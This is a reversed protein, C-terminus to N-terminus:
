EDKKDKKGSGVAVLAPRLPKSFFKYGKRHVKIVKDEEGEVSEIAEHVTPDFKKGESEVEELGQSTLFKKFKDVVKDLGEDKIHKQSQELDDFIELVKVLLIENAFKIIREKDEESRRQLNTYDALARKYKNEFEESKEKLAEIENAHEQQTDEKPQEKKEQKDSM